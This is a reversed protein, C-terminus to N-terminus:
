PKRREAAAIAFARLADAHRLTELFLLYGDIEPDDLTAACIEGVSLDIENGVSVLGAFGIHRAKGRSALAGIMTGSHSAAFLRGVPLDTEAFAANATLFVNKRPNVLGLSSPGILRIGTRACVQQLQATRAHGAEGAEAFGDALITAVPVGAKGCEEAADVVGATPTVIYAHDPVEPLEGLSPWAREGLVTARRPNIAYVAGAYGAQRLYSLPRGATKTADDSQGIIAVSRPSLLAQRLSTASAERLMLGALSPPVSRPYI